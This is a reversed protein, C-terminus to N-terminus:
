PVSPKAPAPQASIVLSGATLGDSKAVLKISGPERTTQVIVQALGNFASRSWSLPAPAQQLRLSVGRSLGSGEPGYNATPVAIVNEGPHLISKVDYAMASRADITGGIKQGNVYMATGGAVKGFVLEVASSDLDEATVTFRTRYMAQERLGLSGVDANVDTPDWSSDDFAVAEEPLSEPYIDKMKKWRWGNVPVTRFTSTPVLTDPEHSSPDGNGVGIIRGPGEIEFTVKNGATPVVRGKSDLISVAVLAVDQGDANLAARDPSLHVAAAETTTEVKTEAVLRGGSYARASLTGATYPVTWKIESFKPM